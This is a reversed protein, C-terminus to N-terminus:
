LAERGKGHAEAFIRWVSTPPDAPFGEACLSNSSGSRGDNMATFNDEAISERMETRCDTYSHANDKRVDCPM